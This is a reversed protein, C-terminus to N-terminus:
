GRKSAVLTLKSPKYFIACGIYRCIFFNHHYHHYYYYTISEHVWKHYNAGGNDKKVSYSYGSCEM